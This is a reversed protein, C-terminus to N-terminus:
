LLSKIHHVVSHQLLVANICYLQRLPPCLKASRADFHMASGAQDSAVQLSSFANCHSLAHPEM